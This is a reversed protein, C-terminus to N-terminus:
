DPATEDQTSQVRLQWLDSLSASEKSAQEEINEREHLLLRTIHNRSDNALTMFGLMLREGEIEGNTFRRIVESKLDSLRQLLEILVGVQMRVQTDFALLKQEIDMVENFYGQFELERLRNRRQLYWQSLFFAGGLLTAIIALSNDLVGMVEGVILPKHKHIFSKAGLHWPYEGSDEMASIEVPTRADRTLSSDYIIHLLRDIADDSVKEHAVLILRTGMTNLREPPQAHTVSYTYAPIFAESVHRKNIQNEGPDRYTDLAFADSFPLAVLEYQFEDILHQAIPSPLSSITFVGDAIVDGKRAKLLDEYSDRLCFCGNPGAPQSLNAIPELGIFRLFEESFKCTGSNSPGVNIKHGALQSLGFQKIQQALESSVVLHVPELHLPTVERVNHLQPNILGGQVLALDIRGSNVESLAHESGETGVLELLIGRGTCESQLEKALSHRLGVPSGSTLSLRQTKKPSYFVFWCGVAIILLGMALLALDRRNRQSFQM